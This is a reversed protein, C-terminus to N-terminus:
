PTSSASPGGDSASASDTAGATAGGPAFHATADLAAKAIAILKVNIPKALLAPVVSVAVTRPGISAVLTPTLYGTLITAPVDGIAADAPVAGHSRYDEVTTRVRSAAQASTAYLSITVEVKNVAPKGKAPAAIGYQCYLQTLRGINPLPSGLIDSTKGVVPVGLAQDVTEVPLLDGCRGGLTPKVTASPSPTTSPAASSTLSNSTSASSSGGPPSAASNDKNGAKSCGTLSAMAIVAACGFAGARAIRRSRGRELTSVQCRYGVSLM